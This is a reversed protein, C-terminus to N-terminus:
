FSSKVVVFSTRDYFAGSYKSNHSSIPIIVDLGGAPFISM